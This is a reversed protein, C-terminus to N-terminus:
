NLRVESINPSLQLGACYLSHQLLTRWLSDPKGNCLFNVDVSCDLLHAIASCRFALTWAKILFYKIALFHQGDATNEALRIKKSTPLLHDQRLKPRKLLGGIKESILTTSASPQPLQVFKKLHPLHLKGFQDINKTEHIIERYCAISNSWMKGVTFRREFNSDTWEFGAAAKDVLNILNKFDKTIEAIKMTDEGTIEMELFQQKKKKQSM